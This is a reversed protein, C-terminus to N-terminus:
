NIKLTGSQVTLKHERKLRLSILFEQDKNQVLSDIEQQRWFNVDAYSTGCIVWLTFGPELRNYAVM